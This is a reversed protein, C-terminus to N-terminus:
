SASDAPFGERVQGSQPLRGKEPSGGGQTYTYLPVECVSSLENSQKNTKRSLGLAVEEKMETDAPCPCM